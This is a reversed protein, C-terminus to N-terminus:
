ARPLLLTFTSGDGIKSRVNVDGGMKRALQRSIALGLGIGEAIRTPSEDEQVFPDFVRELMHPAIGRGTDTVEIAMTDSHIVCRVHVRGHDTFKAANSLLNLMIQQVKDRDAHAVADVGCSEFHYTIGKARFAPEISAELDRLLQEIPLDAIRFELRGSELKAFGLVEDILRRLIGQNVKIRGLDEQQENTLPGHLELQLIDVYGGVANLPTRLEHSMTALFQSKAGNAREAERQALAAAEVARRLQKNTEELERQLMHSNDIQQELELVQQELEMAQQQVEETLDREARRLQNRETVDRAIKSAGIVSGDDDLIPSVTLSIEIPRGDKRLRVTEYFAVREKRSLKEIIIREEHHLEPPILALVSQGVIEPASYGFIREAGGNWSRIVGDLTKGVVADDSSEVISALWKTPHQAWPPPSPVRSRNPM